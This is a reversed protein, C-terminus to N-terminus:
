LTLSSRPVYYARLSPIYTYIADTPIGLPFLISPFCLLLHYLEPTLQEPYPEHSFLVSGEPKM